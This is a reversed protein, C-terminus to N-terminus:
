EIRQFYRMANEDDCSAKSEAATLDLKDIEAKVGIYSKAESLKPFLCSM